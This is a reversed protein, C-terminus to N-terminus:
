DREVLRIQERHANLWYDKLHAQKTCKVSSERGEPSVLSRKKNRRTTGAVRKEMDILGGPDGHQSRVDGPSLAM